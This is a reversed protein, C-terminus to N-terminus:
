SLLNCRVKARLEFPGNQLSSVNGKDSGRSYRTALYIIYKYSKLGANNVLEKRIARM